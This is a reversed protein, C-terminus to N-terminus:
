PADTGTSEQAARRAPVRGGMLDAMRLAFEDARRHLYRETTKLNAQQLFDRVDLASAGQADLYSAASHRIDHPRLKGDGDATLSAVGTHIAVRDFWERLASGGIVCVKGQHLHTFVHPDNGLRELRQIAALALEPIASTGPRRGKQSRASLRVIGGPGIRDHRLARVTEFRWGTRFKVEYFARFLLVRRDGIGEYRCERLIEAGDLFRLVDEYPLWTERGHPEGTGKADDLPNRPIHGNRVLWGFMMRTLWLEQDLTYPAITRNKWRGAKDKRRRAMHAAWVQATSQLCPLHRHRWVFPLIRPRYNPWNRNGAM